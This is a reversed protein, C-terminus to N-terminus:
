PAIVIRLIVPYHDSTGGLWRPGSFSRSPKTGGYARDPESLAPANFVSERVQLGDSAFYGDIKEWAGNYKITGQSGPEKWVDDNFDGVSIINRHGQAALSDMLQRMRAMAIERKGGSGGGVKSPHHNVLVDLDEFEVVLIDRTPMIAGDGDLLHKPSARKFKFSSKRWLLACDIGRHDPSEFHAIAYDLKRLPTASVLQQLAFRDGVEMLAVADPLRGQKDAIMFITKSIANCKAYFRRKTYKGSTDERYDLFNEVNWSVLLLSDAATINLCLTIFLALM